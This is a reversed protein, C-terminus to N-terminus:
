RKCDIWIDTKVVKEQGNYVFIQESNALWKGSAPCKKTTQILYQKKKKAKAKIKKGKKKSKKKVTVMNYKDIKAQLGTLVIRCGILPPTFNEIVLVYRNGIKSIGYQFGARIGGELEASLGIDLANSGTLRYIEVTASTEGLNCGLIVTGKGKGIQSSSSCALGNSEDFASADCTDGVKNVKMGEPLYLRIGKGDPPVSDLVEQGRDWDHSFNLEFIASSAPKAPYLYISNNVTVGWDAAAVPAVALVLALAAFFSLSLKSVSQSMVDM